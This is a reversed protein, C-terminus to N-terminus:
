QLEHDRDHRVIPSVINEGKTQAHWGMSEAASHKIYWLPQVHVLQLLYVESGWRMYRATVTTSVNQFDIVNSCRNCVKLTNQASSAKPAKRHMCLTNPLSKTSEFNPM